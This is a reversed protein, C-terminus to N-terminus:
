IQKVFLRYNLNLINSIKNNKDFLPRNRKILNNEVELTLYNNSIETDLFNFDAHDIILLGNPKLLKDLKIVEREFDEFLFKQAISNEKATRNITYQLVALAFIADYKKTEIENFKSTFLFNSNKYKNKAQKICWKNIDIGTINSNSMYDNLTKVEEGTSCGYSLINIKKFPKNQKKFYEKTIKFLTPYRNEKTFTSVQNQDKNTLSSIYENRVRSNTIFQYTKYPYLLFNYIVKLFPNNSNKYTKIKEKM